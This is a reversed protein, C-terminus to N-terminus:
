FGEEGPAYRELDALAAWDLAEPEGGYRHEKQEGYRTQDGCQPCAYMGPVRPKPDHFTQTGMKVLYHKNRQCFTRVWFRQCDPCQYCNGLSARRVERQTRPDWRPPPLDEIPAVTRRCPWCVDEIQMHYMLLCNILMELGGLDRPAAFVAGFHHGPYHPTNEGAPTKDWPKSGWFGFRPDPDSHVIFAAQSGLGDRYKMKATGLMDAEFKTSVGYVLQEKHSAYQQGYRRYKADLAFRMPKQGSTSIEVLLDPKLLSWDPRSHTGTKGMIKEYCSLGPCTGPRFCRKGPRCVPVDQEKDYWLRITTERGPADAPAHRLRFERGTLRHWLVEGGAVEVHRLPHDPSVPEFGFRSILMDYVEVLIWLEYLNWAPYLSRSAALAAELGANLPVFVSGAERRYRHYARFVPGYAASRTLKDSPREPLAPEALCEKLFPESRLPLIDQALGAIGEAVERMEGALTGARQQGANWSSVFGGYRRGFQPANPNNGAAWDAELQDARDELRGAVPGAKRFFEALVYALFRNEATRHSEQPMLVELRRAAPRAAAQQIMRASNPGRYRFVDVASAALRTEKAAAARILPWNTRVCDGLDRLQRAANLLCRDPDDNPGTGPRFTGKNKRRDGSRFPSYHFAALQRLRRIIADFEKQELSGTEVSIEPSLPVAPDDGSWLCLRGAYSALPADVAGGSRSRILVRLAEAPVEYGDRGSVPVLRLWDDGVQIRPPLSNRLLRVYWGKQFLGRGFQRFVACGNADDWPLPTDTATSLFEVDSM